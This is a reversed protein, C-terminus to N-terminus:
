LILNYLGSIKLNKTKKINVGNVRSNSMVIIVALNFSNAFYLEM